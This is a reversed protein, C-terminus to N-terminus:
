NILYKRQTTYLIIFIIPFISFYIFITQFLITGIFILSGVIPLLEGVIWLMYGQKKLKRMEVAGYTCLGISLLSIILLPVKNDLTKQTMELVEPGVFKRAFAPMQDINVQAKRIKELNDEGSIFNKIQSFLEFACGIFTLITLVNLLSPLKNEEPFNTDTMNNFNM